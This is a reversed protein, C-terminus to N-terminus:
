KEQSFVPSLNKSGLGALLCIELCEMALFLTFSQRKYHHTYDGAAGAPDPVRSSRVRGMPELREDTLCLNTKTFSDHPHREELVVKM